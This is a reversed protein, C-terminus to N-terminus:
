VVEASTSAGERRHLRTRQSPISGGTLLERETVVKLGRWIDPGGDKVIRLFTWGGDGRGMHIGAM